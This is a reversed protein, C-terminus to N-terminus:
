VQMRMVDQYAELVRNRVQLLLQLSMRSEELRVMVEHLSAAEGAALRQLDAQSALLGENVEQLGRAVQQAFAPGMPTAVGTAPPAVEDHAGLGAIAQVNM